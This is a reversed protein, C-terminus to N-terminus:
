KKKAELEEKIEERVEVGLEVLQEEDVFSPANMMADEAKGNKPFAYIERINHEDALIMMFRDFGIAFGGHPPAGYQFANYMSGFKAKIEEEGRGVMEFSKLLTPIDHNRIAGSLIEYGNCALDYQSARITLPDEKILAELGGQPMSFPNHCFDLKGTQEDMEFLPFDLVWVFSLEDKSVLNYKDRLATRVVGLVKTVTKHEGAGFFIMDGVKPQLKDELVKLEKEGFFKIIPSKPGEAEYIIYALGKAGAGVAVAT